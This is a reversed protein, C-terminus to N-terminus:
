IGCDSVPARPHLDRGWPVANKNRPRAPLPVGDVDVVRGSISGTGTIQALGPATSLLIALFVAASLPLLPLCRGASRSCNRM